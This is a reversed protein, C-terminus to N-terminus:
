LPVLDDDRIRIAVGSLDCRRGLLPDLLSRCGFRWGDLWLVRADKMMEWEQKLQKSYRDASKNEERQDDLNSNIIFPRPPDYVRTKTRRGKVRCAWSTVKQERREKQRNEGVWKRKSKGREGTVFRVVGKRDM